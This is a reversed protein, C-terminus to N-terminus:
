FPNLLYTQHKEYIVHLSTGWSTLRRIIITIMEIKLSCKGQLTQFIFNYLPELPLSHTKTLVKIIHSFM